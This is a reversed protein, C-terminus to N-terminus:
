HRWDVPDRGMFAAFREWDSAGAPAAVEAGFPIGKGAADRFEPKLMARAGELAPAAFASNLRDLQGTAAALDWTHGALEALYMDIVTQGTFTEGWPMEITGTLRTEDAWASRADAEARRLGDPADALPVHPMEEISPQEGRGLTAARWGAFVLHDVMTAVNYDPCPTPDELQDERVGSVIEAAQTYGQFFAPRRDPM